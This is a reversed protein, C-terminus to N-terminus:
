FFRTVVFNIFYGVLYSSLLNVESGIHPKMAWSTSCRPPWPNSDRQLGSKKKWAEEKWNNLNSFKSRHDNKVKMKYVTPSKQTLSCTSKFCTVTCYDFWWFYCWMCCFKYLLHYWFIKVLYLCTNNQSLLCSDRLQMNRNKTTTKFNPKLTLPLTLFYKLGNLTDQKRHKLCFVFYSINKNTHLQVSHNYAKATWNM